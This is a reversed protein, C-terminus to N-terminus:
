EFHDHARDLRERYADLEESGEAQADEDTLDGLTRETVDVIKFTEGDIDFTDREKAHPNGRRHQSVRGATVAQQIHESPLVTGADVKAM